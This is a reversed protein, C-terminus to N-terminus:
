GKIWLRYNLWYGFISQPYRKIPGMTDKPRIHVGGHVLDTYCLAEEAMLADIEDVLTELDTKTFKNGM